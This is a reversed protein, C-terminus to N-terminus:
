KGGNNDLVPGMASMITLAAPGLMPVLLLTTTTFVAFITIVIKLARHLNLLGTGAAGMCAGTHVIYLGIILLRAIPHNLFPIIYGPTAVYTLCIVCFPLLWLTLALIVMRM